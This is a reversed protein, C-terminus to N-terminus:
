LHGYRIVQFVFVGNLKKLIYTTLFDVNNRNLFLFLQPIQVKAVKGKLYISQFQDELTPTTLM